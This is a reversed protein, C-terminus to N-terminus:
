RRPKDLDFVMLLTRKTESFNDNSIVFLRVRGDPLEKAAIGAFSDVMRSSDLQALTRWGTEVFRHRSREEIEGGIRRQWTFQDAYRNFDTETISIGNGAEPSFSRHLLFTRVAGDEKAAPIVDLGVLEPADVGVRLSFDPEGEIPRASLPSLGYAKTELGTFLYWDSTVGLAEAGKSEGVDIGSEAFADPLPLGYPGFNIPAGRAAVGCKGLDYALVRHNREFSVLAMGGNVALGAAKGDATERLSDGDADRMAAVRARVPTLGDPALDIWVFSGHDSVALLSGNDLIDLDSIGGFASDLSALQFGAVFSLEGIKKGSPNIAQVPEATVTIAVSRALQSPTNPECSAASLALVYDALSGRRLDMRAATVTVRDVDEAPQPANLTIRSPGVDVQAVPAPEVPAPASACATLIAALCVFGSQRVLQM